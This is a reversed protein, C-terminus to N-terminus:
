RRTLDPQATRTRRPGSDASPLVSRGLSLRRRDPQGRPAAAAADTSAGRRGSRGRGRGHHQSATQRQELGAVLLDVVDVLPVAVQEGDGVVDQAVGVGELIEHEVGVLDAFQGPDTQTVEGEDHDDDYSYFKLRRLVPHSCHTM